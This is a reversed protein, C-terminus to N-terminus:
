DDGTLIVLNDNQIQYGIDTTYGAVPDNNSVTTPIIIKSVPTLILTHCFPMIIQQQQQQQQQQLHQEREYNSGAVPPASTNSSVITTRISVGTILVLVGRGATPQQQVGKIRMEVGAFTQLQMMRDQQTACVAHAGGVTLAKYVVNESFATNKNINNDSNSDEKYPNFYYSDIERILGSRLSLYYVETVFKGLTSGAPADSPLIFCSGITYPPTPPASSIIPIAPSAHQAHRPNEKMVVPLHNSIAATLETSSCKQHDNEDKIVTSTRPNPKACSIGPPPPLAESKLIERDGDDVTGSISLNGFGPPPVDGNIKNPGITKIKDIRVQEQQPQYNDYDEKMSEKTQHGNMGNMLPLHATGTSEADKHRKIRVDNDHKNGGTANMDNGSGNSMAEITNSARRYARQKNKLKKLEKKKERFIDFIRRKDQVGFKPLTEISDPLKWVIKKKNKRSPLVTKDVRITMIPVEVGYRMIDVDWTALDADPIPRPDSLFHRDESSVTHNNNETANNM